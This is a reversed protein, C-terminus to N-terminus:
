SRHGVLQRALLNLIRGAANGDGYPNRHKVMKLYEKRQSLLRDAERFIKERSTGVLRAVGLAIGDPRESVERMVLVPKGFSPAEEQIGGSDTLVLYSREMLYLFELYSLPEILHVREKGFLERLVTQQVEPNRHVPYVIEVDRHHTVIDKLAGCVSRFPKGFSERRHATVLVIKKNWGFRNLGPFSCGPLLQKVRNLADVVTNGTVFIKKGSIGEALLNRRAEETPALHYDALHSILVRNIEEPFPHYKNHSRLGAEIHAVPIRHYFAKLAVAFATTTDGQVLMLDPKTKQLVPEISKFLRETLDGLTQGKEMLNLDFDTKIKFLGLVQDVMQRHQATLCVLTKFRPDKKAALIVPAMKLAEPRTGFVFLLKIKKRTM